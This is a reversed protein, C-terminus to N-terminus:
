QNAKKQEIYIAVGLLLIMLIFSILAITSGTKVVQPEFKFEISHKGAPIKMARLAYDARFHSASEGDITANWGDAYYMESFVAVGPNSNNSVYKLHNPQYSLLQITATSDVNFSTLDGKFFPGFEPQNVVVVKKSDLSDLAKMEQDPSNVFKVMQVFWANGNHNPNYTPFEKGEKDTQIIFKTNLMNLVEMNNKAIQYDFLQQMRRPKVASYGGISQHFYSARASSMNGDVEFVRYHSSDRLIELDSATPQFPVDVESPSVFSKANVYNKDIFFLDSIMIIGVLIVATSKSIKNKVFFWLLGFALLVLFGSRLLDASYLSKRDEKLANIFESGYNQLYYADSGGSFSFQSKIAILFAIIGFFVGGSLYLGKLQQAKEEKFFSQLGMIALVPICFELIVQISSVARFKNYMPITDIFFDTLIPFNKGWSLILSVVTGAVFVYKIKRKDLFLAVLCLFFVVAGIYAPAAVIPQDGWYAPMSSVFEKAQDEPVSKGILFEYMNTNAGINEGNSGGFIRPSILNFSEAIGYSYETIYDHTMANDSTSKSGDPSFTLESKGRTSYKAYEATALLSTANAGIALIGAIVFIGFATFLSKYEKDKLQKYIYFATIILILFLLYYTMQPHNANLELAAAFMTLLGGVLFRRQFVLLVGAVVLPMYAIAHAKANHGVGLIIILYTSFGFALAGFFAKLPDAKLVLLLVYFGLFYLFLYDAPRPLIRLASDLKNIYEHPYNAGLQYTPMGGFASNTWYPESNESARFDIQEKAMGTYQAIDSQAIKKGQLVPYFYILSILIFGLIAIAHPYIRELRKM